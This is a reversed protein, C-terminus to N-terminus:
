NKEISDLLQQESCNHPNLRIGFGKEHVRQANDYQDSFLPMVIMPKGCSFTETITNNGGHTIVVDVLPLVKTQPVSPEGWMNDALEYTDGFVGKSVIIKHQSKSLISVLRKMLDVNASGMSGLSFYILKSKEIDRDRFKDPIKFEQKKGRRMFADVRLWKEPLPRLDIYDLEEPYGYINLYPSDSIGTNGTNLPYGEEKMWENYKINLNKFKNKSLEKFEAWEQRDGNSAYGPPTREDEIVSLPNGSYLFVWPNTSHILTPPAAFDDIIYVDPNHKAVIAKLQQENARMTDVLDEFFSFIHMLKMSESSTLNSLIGSELVCKADNEGPKQGSTKASTFIEEIFGFPSLKGAYSQNVAFVIKHGRSLLVQAMGICANVHGVGQDSAFLITLHM